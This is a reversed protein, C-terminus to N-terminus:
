RYSSRLHLYEPQWGASLYESSPGALTYYELPPGAPPHHESSPGAPPYYEPRLGAPPRHESLPGAPPYYEPRLGAPPRHESLPGVPPYYEPRLGAPPRHESSPGAPYYEPRLGAPPHHKSSPGAPPYYEPRLGAPPHYGSSRGGSYILDHSFPPERYRVYPDRYEIDDQRRMELDLHQRDYGGLLPERRYVEMELPRKYAYSPPPIAAAPPLPLPAHLPRSARPSTYVEREYLAPPEKYLRDEHLVPHREEERGLQTRRQRDSATRGEGRLSRGSDKSKPGKSAAQFLKCLNKVQDSNLECNFKNKKYYNDKIVKKFKEEALPLCDELVSFRVQSPFSSKFAKPEINYGGPGTAKYIGYMLRLDFDFLFLRMGKYIKQVVQKKSAPLGFVKYHYCDKKTKSSCMFIMGFSDAKKKSSEPKDAEKTAKASTDELTKKKSTKKTKIVKKKKTSNREVKGGSKAEKSMRMDTKIRKKANEEKCDREKLVEEKNKNNPVVIAEEVNTEMTEFTTAQIESKKALANTESQPKSTKGKDKVNEM